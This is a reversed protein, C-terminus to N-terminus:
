DLWLIHAGPNNRDQVLKGGHRLALSKMLRVAQERIVSRGTSAGYGHIIKVGRHGNQLGQDLARMLKELAEDWTESAHAVDVELLGLLTRGRIPEGCKPCELDRLPQVPIECNPCTPTQSPNM